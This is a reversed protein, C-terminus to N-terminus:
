RRRLLALHMADTGHVHPWLQVHPGPGLQYVGPFYPRADIIEIDERHLLVEEVVDV